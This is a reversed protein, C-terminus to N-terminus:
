DDYWWLQETLDWNWGNCSLKLGIFTREQAYSQKMSQWNRTENSICTNEVFKWDDPDYMFVCASIALGNCWDNLIDVCSRSFTLSRCIDPCPLSWLQQPKRDCSFMCNLSYKVLVDKRSTFFWIKNQFKVNWKRRKRQKVSLALILPNQLAFICSQSWSVDRLLNRVLVVWLTLFNVKGFWQKGKRICILEHVGCTREGGTHFSIMLFYYWVPKKTLWSKAEQYPKYLTYHCFSYVWGM